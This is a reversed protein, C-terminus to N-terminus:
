NDDLVEKQQGWVVKGPEPAPILYGQNCIIDEFAQLLALM